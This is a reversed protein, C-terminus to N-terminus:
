TLFCRICTMGYLMYSVRVYVTWPGRSPHMICRVAHLGVDIICSAGEHYEVCNLTCLAACFLCRSRVLSFCSLSFIGNCRSDRRACDLLYICDNLILLYLILLQIWSCCYM